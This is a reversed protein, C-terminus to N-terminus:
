YGRTIFRNLFSRTRAKTEEDVYVQVIGEGMQGYFISAGLPSALILPLVSLDEEGDIQIIIHAQNTINEFINKILKFLEGCLSGSHNKIKYVKEDGLFGLENVNKFKWKRAVKFDIVSLNPKISLSNFTKTTVDGVTILLNDKLDIDEIKKLLRGLPSKLKKQLKPPLILDQSIWLPNIYLKGERDIEGKRIRFSSIPKGDLALVPPATIIKLPPLNKEKRRDNIEEARKLTEKSVVIAYAKLNKNLTTGFMDDIKVIEYRGKAVKELFARLAKKRHIYNQILKFNSIQFKFNKIFKDSTIGIILKSSSSLGLRLFEKHGKHFHDFTGGLVVTKFKKSSGM